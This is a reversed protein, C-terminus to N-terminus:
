SNPWGSQPGCSRRTMSPRVLPKLTTTVLVLPMWDTDSRFPLRKAKTGALLETLMLISPM